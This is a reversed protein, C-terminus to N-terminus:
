AEERCQRQLKSNARDGAVDMHSRANSYSDLSSHGVMRAPRQEQRTEQISAVEIAENKMGWADEQVSPSGLRKRRCVKLTGREEGIDQFLEPSLVPGITDDLIFDKWFIM